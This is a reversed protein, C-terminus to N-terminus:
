RSEGVNVNTASTRTAPAPAPLAPVFLSQPSTASADTYWVPLGAVVEVFRFVGNGQMPVVTTPQTSVALRLPAGAGTLDVRVVSSDGGNAAVAWHGDLSIGVALPAKLLGTSALPTAAPASSVARVLTLANAGADAVLLTDSSGAFSLSGAGALTLVPQAGGSQALVEVAGAVAAVVSGADSIAVDSLASPAAMQRTAPTTGVSQVVWVATSGPVFLVVATGAPSFRIRVGSVPVTFGLGAATGSPVAMRYVSGDEGVLLAWGSVASAAGAAYTEAPVVSQGVQSSGPIGLIPHLTQDDAKWGYGMQPGKPAAAAPSSARSGTAAQTFVGGGCGALVGCLVVGVAMPVSRCISVPSPSSLAHRM